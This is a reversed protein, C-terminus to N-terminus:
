PVAPPVSVVLTDGDRLLAADSLLAGGLGAVAFQLEAPSASAPLYKRALAVLEANSRVLPVVVGTVSPSAAWQLVIRAVPPVSSPASPPPAPSTPLVPAASPSAGPQELVALLKDRDVIPLQPYRLYAPVFPESTTTTTTTETAPTSPPAAAVDAPTRGSADRV